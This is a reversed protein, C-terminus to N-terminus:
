GLCTHHRLRTIRPTARTGRREPIGKLSRQLQSLFGLKPLSPSFCYPPHLPSTPLPLFLSPPLSIHSSYLPLSVFVVTPLSSCTVQLGNHTSTRAHATRDFGSPSSRHTQCVFRNRIIEDERVKILGEFQTGLLLISSLRWLRWIRPQVRHPPYDMCQVTLECQRTAVPLTPWTCM